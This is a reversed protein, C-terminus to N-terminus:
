RSMPSSPFWHAGFTAYQWTCQRAGNSSAAQWVGSNGRTDNRLATVGVAVAATHGGGGGMVYQKWADPTKSLFNLFASMTNSCVPAWQPDKLWNRLFAGFYNNASTRAHTCTQTYTHERPRASYTCAYARAHVARPRTAVNATHRSYRRFAGLRVMNRRQCRRGCSM